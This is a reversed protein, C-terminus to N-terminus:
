EKVERYGAPVKLEFLADDLEENWGLAELVSVAKVDGATMEVRCRAPLESKPDIWVTVDAESKSGPLKHGKVAYVKLKRGDITEDPLEKIEKGKLDAVTRYSSDANVVIAGYYYPKGKREAKLLVRADAIREAFVYSIPAFFAFDVTRSRLAEVLGSYDLAVHIRVPMGARRSIMDALINANRQVNESRESPNLGIIIEKKPAPAEATQSCGALLGALLGLQLLALLSSLRHINRM